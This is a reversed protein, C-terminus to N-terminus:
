GKIASTSERMGDATQDSITSVKSVSTMIEESSASQQEAAAAISSVQRTTGGVLEVIAKLAEGSKESLDTAETVAASANDM